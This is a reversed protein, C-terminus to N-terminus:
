PKFKATHFVDGNNHKKIRARLDGTLGVYFRGLEAESELIYVYHM